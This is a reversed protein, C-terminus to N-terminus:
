KLINGFIVLYPILIDGMKTSTCDQCQLWSMKCAGGIDMLTESVQSIVMIKSINSEGIMIVPLDSCVYIRSEQLGVNECVSLGM